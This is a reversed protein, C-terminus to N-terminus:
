FFNWLPFKYIFVSTTPRTSDSHYLVWLRAIPFYGKPRDKLFNSLCASLSKFTTLLHLRTNNEPSLFPFFLFSFNVCQCYVRNLFNPSLRVPLIGQQNPILFNVCQCYVRNVFNTSLCVPLLGQQNPIPFNVCQSYERNFNTSLCVPLLGQQNAIPFNVCQCQFEYIFM